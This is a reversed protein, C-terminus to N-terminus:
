ICNPAIPGSGGVGKTEHTEPTSCWEGAQQKTSAPALYSQTKYSKYSVNETVETVFRMPKTGFFISELLNNPQMLQM